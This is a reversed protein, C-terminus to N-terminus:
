NITDIAERFASTAGQLYRHRNSDNGSKEKLENLNLFEKILFDFYEKLKSEFEKGKEANDWKFLFDYYKESRM